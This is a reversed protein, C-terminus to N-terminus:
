TPKTPAQISQRIEGQLRTEITKPSEKRSIALIGDLYLTRYRVENDILAKIKGYVPLYVMNAFGVGYLTAVFAVAIGKGLEVPEAIHSTVQILGLVAGVIGFTPSYGGAQLWIRAAAMQNREFSELERRLADEIVPTSYGNALLQLGRAAFPGIHSTNVSDLAVVGELMAKRGWEILTSLSKQDIPKPRFFVGGLLKLGTVFRTFSNQVMVAAITGVVVIMLGEARFLIALNGGELSFGLVVAGVGFILGIVTLFDM